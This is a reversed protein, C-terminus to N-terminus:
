RNSPHTQSKKVWLRTGPCARSRAVSPQGSPHAVPFSHTLNRLNRLNSIHSLALSSFFRRPRQLPYRTAPLPYPATFIAAQSSKM